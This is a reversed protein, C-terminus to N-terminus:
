LCSHVCLKTRSRCSTSISHLLVQLYRDALFRHALNRHVLHNPLHSSSWVNRIATCCVNSRLCRDSSSLLREVSRLESLTGFAFGLQPTVSGRHSIAKWTYQSERHVLEIRANGSGRVFRVRRDLRGDRHQLWICHFLGGIFADTVSLYQDIRYISVIITLWSALGAVLYRRWKPWNRPNDLDDLNSRIYIKGDDGMDMLSVGNCRLTDAVAPNAVELHQNERKIKENDRQDLDDAPRNAELDLPEPDQPVGDKANAQKLDADSLGFRPSYVDVATLTPSPPDSTTQTWEIPYM